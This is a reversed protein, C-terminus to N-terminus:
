FDLMYSGSPGDDPWDNDTKIDSTSQKTRNKWAPSVRMHELHTRGGTVVDEFFDGLFSWVSVGAFKVTSVVSLYVAATEM